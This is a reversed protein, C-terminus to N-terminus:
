CKEIITLAESYCKGTALIGSEKLCDIAEGSPTAICGGAETVLVAGAAFDWPRLIWELFVDARGAAISCLDLAASGSRRIDLTHDFFIRMQRFTKETLERNYPSSGILVISESLSNNSVHIPRKNCFAGAGQGAVFMEDLYPNYIVGVFPEKNKLLGISVCSAKYDRIFNTTGDIPDVVFVFERDLHSECGEEEGLFGAEPMLKSLREYLFHQVKVDYETVFNATGSKETVEKRHNEASLLIEGALRAVGSIEDMLKQIDM